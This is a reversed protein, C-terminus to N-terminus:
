YYLAHLFFTYYIFLNERQIYHLLTQKKVLHDFYYFSELIKSYFIILKQVFINPFKPKKIRFIVYIFLFCIFILSITSWLTLDFPIEKPVRERIFRFWVFYSLLFLGLFIFIFRTIINKMYLNKLMLIHLKIIM